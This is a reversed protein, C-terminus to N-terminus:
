KHHSKHKKRGRKVRPIIEQPDPLGLRKRAQRALCFTRLHERFTMPGEVIDIIPVVAVSQISPSEEEGVVGVEPM